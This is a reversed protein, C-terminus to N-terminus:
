VSQQAHSELQVISVTRSDKMQNIHELQVPILHHHGLLVFIVKRATKATVLWLIVKENQIPVLLASRDTQPQHVTIGLQASTQIFRSDQQVIIDRPVAQVHVRQIESNRIIAELQVNKLCNPQIIM